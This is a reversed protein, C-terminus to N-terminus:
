SLTKAKHSCRITRQPVKRRRCVRAQPWVPNCLQPVRILNLPKCLSGGLPFPFLCVQEHGASELSLSLITPKQWEKKDM